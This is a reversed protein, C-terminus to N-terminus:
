GPRTRGEPLLRTLRGASARLRRLDRRITTWLAWLVMVQVFALVNVVLVLLVATFPGLESLVARILGVEQSVYIAVPLVFAVATLAFMRVLVVAVAMGSWAPAPAMIPTEGRANPADM